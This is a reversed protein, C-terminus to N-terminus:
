MSDHHTSISSQKAKEAQRKKMWAAKDAQTKGDLRALYAKSGDSLSSEDIKTRDGKFDLDLLPALERDRKINEQHLADWERLSKELQEQRRSKQGQQYELKARESQIDRERQEREDNVRQKRARIVALKARSKASETKAEQADKESQPREQMAEVM